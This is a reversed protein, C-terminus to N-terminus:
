AMLFWNTSHRTLENSDDLRREFSYSGRYLSTPPTVSKLHGIGSKLIEGSTPKLDFVESYLYGIAPTLSPIGWFGLNNQVLGVKISEYLRM